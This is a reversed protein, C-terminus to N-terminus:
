NVAKSRKKLNPSIDNIQNCATVAHVLPALKNLLEILSPMNYAVFYDVNAGVPCYEILYKPLRSGNQLEYVEIPNGLISDDIQYVGYKGFYGLAIIAKSIDHENFLTLYAALFNHQQIWGKKFHYGWIENM